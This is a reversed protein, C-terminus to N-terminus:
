VVYDGKGLEINPQGQTNLIPMPTGNVTINTPWSHSDGPLPIVSKFFVQWSQTFSAGDDTANLELVSPWACLHKNQDKYSTHNIFPCTLKESDKLVWPIWSQLSKPVSEDALSSFSFVFLMFLCLFLSYLRKETM